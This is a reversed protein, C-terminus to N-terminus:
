FRVMFRPEDVTCEVQDDNLVRFDNKGLRIQTGSYRRFTVWDGIACWPTNGFKTRDRYCMEGMDVVRGVQCAMDEQHAVQEPKAITTGEFTRPARYLVVLLRWGKPKPIGDASLGEDVTAEGVAFAEIDAESTTTTM